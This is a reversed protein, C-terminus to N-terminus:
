SSCCARAGRFPTKALVFGNLAGLFCSIITGPVAIQVSNWLNGKLQGWALNFGTMDISTPLGLSGGVAGPGKLATSIIVYVPFVFYILLLVCLILIVWQGALPPALAAGPQHGAQTPHSPQTPPGNRRATDVVASM